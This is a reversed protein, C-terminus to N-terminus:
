HMDKDGEHPRPASGAAGGVGGIIMFAVVAIIVIALLIWMGIVIV